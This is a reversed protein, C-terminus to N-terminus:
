IFSTDMQGEGEVMLGFFQDYANERLVLVKGNFLPILNNDKSLGDLEHQYVNILYPQLQKFLTSMQKISLDENLDAILEKGAGYPVLVSTSHDDIVNFYKGVTDYSTALNLPFKKNHYNEYHIKYKANTTILNYLSDSLDPIHYDLELNMKTFYEEFYFAMVESSLLKESGIDKLIKQTIEAGVKIAKLKNLVEERHNIIYVNKCDYDGHRNCRGAAQAISDLGALSRIVSNFSIDVGAEILQTSLCIVKEGQELAKRVAGLTEQRHKACMSTSLHFVYADTDKEKLTQYLDRVVTKTNLIVLVNNERNLTDRVFSALTETDWGNPTTKDKIEVRKFNQNVEDLDQVIEGDITQINHKVKDLAPQTATCLLISSNAIYKLFNLSENFLSVCHIPLAQVEDFIIVANSLNHLRRINRTGSSYFTNLYQVMTTFIIPSDWNDKALTVSKNKVYNDPQEKNHTIRDDQIINSHHELINIDDELIERVEQANQEIITTFPVVYIIRDKKYKIAHKLAYRLSALTKGGGTPISLTYIGSPKYAHEECQSSMESRLANIRNVQGNKQLVEIHQILKKYYQEFLENNNQHLNLKVNDEFSMTDLRDADILCSFLIMTLFTLAKLPHITNNEKLLKILEKEAVDLKGEIEELRKTSEEFFEQVEAYNDLQKDIVRRLVDSSANPTLFDRLGSHHSLIINVLMEVIIRKTPSQDEKYFKEYLWKGGATSHDVSGRKPPNEPNDVVEIIYEKFENSYKGMDHLLGAIAALHSLNLKKGFQSSIQAVNDLHEDVSQVQKDSNRIHAIFDM